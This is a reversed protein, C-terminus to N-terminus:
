VGEVTRSLFAKIHPTQNAQDYATMLIVPEFSAPHTKIFKELLGQVSSMLSQHESIGLRTLHEFVIRCTASRCEITLTSYELAADSLYTQIRTQAPGAWEPDIPEVDFRLDARLRDHVMASLEANVIEDRQNSDLERGAGVFRLVLHGDEDNFVFDRDGQAAAPQPGMAAVLFSLSVAIKATLPRM